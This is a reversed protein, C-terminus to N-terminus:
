YSVAAVYRNGKADQEISLFGSHPWLDESFCGGCDLSLFGSRPWTGGIWWARDLLDNLVQAM